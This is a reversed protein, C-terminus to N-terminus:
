SRYNFNIHIRPLHVIAPGGIRSRTIGLYKGVIMNMPVSVFPIAFIHADPRAHGGPDMGRHNQVTLRIRYRFIVKPGQRCVAFGLIHINIPPAYIGLPNM